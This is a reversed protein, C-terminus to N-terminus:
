LTCITNNEINEGGIWSRGKNVELAQKKATLHQRKLKRENGPYDM